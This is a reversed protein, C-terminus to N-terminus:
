TLLERVEGLLERDVPLWAVSDLESAELWTVADHDNGAEPTGAVLLAHWLQLEIRDAHASALAPLARVTVGLEEQLEREVAASPSEGPEIKGGPFEWGRVPKRRRAALVRGGDVV